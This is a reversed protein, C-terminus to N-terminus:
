LGKGCSCQLARPARYWGYQPGRFSWVKFGVPQFIECFGAGRMKINESAKPFHKGQAIGQISGARERESEELEGRYCGGNKKEGLDRRWM